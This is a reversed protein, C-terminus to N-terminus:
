RLTALLHVKIIQQVQCSILGLPGKLREEGSQRM